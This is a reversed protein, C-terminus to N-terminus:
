WAQYGLNSGRMIFPFKFGALQQRAEVYMSHCKHTHTHTGRHPHMHTHTQVQTHILIHVNTHIHVQTHRYTHTHYTHIYTYTHTQPIHTHTQTHRETHIQKHVQTYTQTHTHTSVAGLVFLYISLYASLYVSVSLYGSLYFLYINDLYQNTTTKLEGFLQLQLTKISVYDPVNERRTHTLDLQEMTLIMKGSTHTRLMAKDGKTVLTTKGSM